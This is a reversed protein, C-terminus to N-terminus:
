LRLVKLGIGHTYFLADGDYSDVVAIWRVRILESINKVVMRKVGM